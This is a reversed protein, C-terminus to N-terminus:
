PTPWQARMFRDWVVDPALRRGTIMGKAIAGVAYRPRPHRSSVARVVVKAVDEASVALRGSRGDYAAAFRAALEHNFQDYPGGAGDDESADEALTSVATDGFATQVPGPEILVVRVGFSSVELRLADTLAEVAHKSAHYFGGGPFTFRGGMSGMNVITGAGAARMGPLVLQCLRVLGFVNAEFQARVDALATEEVSGQLSYGANNVLVGVAGHEAVVLDVAASMSADDTVDVALVELGRDALEALSSVQRATAYVPHGAEHLALATARGIGTSCGTVLAAATPRNSAM